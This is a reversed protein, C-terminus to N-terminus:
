YGYHQYNTRRYPILQYNPQLFTVLDVLESVTMLDNFKTMKSQGGQQIKALPYGKAFKHSPNIVSTVLEAYTKVQTSKGGLRISFNPNDVIDVQRYGTLQHCSLCQYKLFVTEGKDIDGEPLSFGRPSEPGQSCSMAVVALCAIIYPLLYKM